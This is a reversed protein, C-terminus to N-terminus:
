NLGNNWTLGVQKSNNHKTKAEYRDFGEMNGSYQHRGVNPIRAPFTMTLYSLWGLKAHHDKTFVMLEPWQEMDPGGAKLCHREGSPAYERAWANNHKTKAEYRDFGEMNGSYQHRGVNNQM